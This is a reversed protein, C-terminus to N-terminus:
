IYYGHAQKAEDRKIIAEELTKFYGVYVYRGEVMFQVKFRQTIKHFHINKIGLKSNKRVGSNRLNQSRTALRLNEIRNDLKDRNIHDIDLSSQRPLIIHHLKQHKGKWDRTAYGYSCVYWRSQTALYAFDVSVKTTLGKGRKGSLPMLIFDSM